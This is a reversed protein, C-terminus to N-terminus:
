ENDKLYVVVYLVPKNGTSVVQVLYRNLPYLKWINQYKKLDSKAIDKWLEWKGFDNTQGATLVNFMNDNVTLDSEDALYNQSYAVTNNKSKKSTRSAYRVSKPTYGVSSVICYAVDRQILPQKYEKVEISSLLQASEEMEFNLHILSDSVRVKQFIVSNYGIFSAAVDYTGTDLPLTYTGDIGCITAVKITDKTAQVLAGPLIENLEKDTVKGTITGKQSFLCTSLMVFLLIICAKKNLYTNKM